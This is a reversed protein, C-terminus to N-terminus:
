RKTDPLLIIPFEATAVLKGNREFFEYAGLTVEFNTSSAAPSAGIPAPVSAEIVYKSADRASPKPQSTILFFKELAEAHRPPRFRVKVDQPNGAPRGEVQNLRYEFYYEISQNSTLLTGVAGTLQLMTDFSKALDSPFFLEVPMFLKDFAGLSVKEAPVSASIRSKCGSQREKEALTEDEATGMFQAQTTQGVNGYEICGNLPKWKQSLSVRHSSVSRAPLIWSKPGPIFWDIWLDSKSLNSVCTIQQMISSQHPHPRVLANTQFHFNGIRHEQQVLGACTEASGSSATLIGLLLALLTIVRCRAM